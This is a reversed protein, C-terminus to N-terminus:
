GRQGLKENRPRFSRPYDDLRSVVLWSLPKAEELGSHLHFHSGLIRQLAREDKSCLPARRPDM